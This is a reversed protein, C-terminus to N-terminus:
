ATVFPLPIDHSETPVAPLRQEEFAAGEVVCADTLQTLYRDYNGGGYGLRNGVADFAVCPCVVFDIQDGAVYPTPCLEEDDHLFTRLPKLMFAVGHSSATGHPLDSGDGDDAPRREGDAPAAKDKSAGQGALMAQTAHYDAPTVLRFEMKQACCGPVAHADRVMCPFSVQVGLEYAARVLQDLQVEDEFASYVALVFEDPRKGSAALAARVHYFLQDCIQASKAARADAPMAARRAMVQKRLDKRAPVSTTANESDM